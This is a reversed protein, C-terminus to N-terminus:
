KKNGENKYIADDKLIKTKAYERAIQESYKENFLIFVNNFLYSYDDNNNNEINNKFYLYKKLMPYKNEDM